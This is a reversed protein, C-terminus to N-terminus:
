PAAASSSSSEPRNWGCSRTRSGTRRSASRPPREIPPSSASRRCSCTCSRPRLRASFSRLWRQIWGGFSEARGARRRPPRAITQVMVDRNRVHRARARPRGRAGRAVHHHSGASVALSSIRPGARRPSERIGDPFLYLRPQRGPCSGGTTWPRSCCRRRPPQWSVRVSWAWRLADSNWYVRSRRRALALLVFLTRAYAAPAGASLGLRGASGSSSCGRKRCTGRPRWRRRVPSRREDDALRAAALGTGARRLPEHLPAVRHEPAPDPHPREVRHAGGRRDRLVRHARRGPLRRRLPRGRDARGQAARTTRWRERAYSHQSLWAPRLWPGLVEDLYASRSSQRNVAHM